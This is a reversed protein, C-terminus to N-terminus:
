GNTEIGWREAYAGAVRLKMPMDIASVAFVALVSAWDMLQQTECGDPPPPVSVSTVTSWPGDGARVMTIAPQTQSKPM